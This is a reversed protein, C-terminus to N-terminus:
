STSSVGRGAPLDPDADVPLPRGGREDVDGIVALADWRVLESVDEFAEVPPAARLRSLPPAPILRVMELDNISAWPPVRM